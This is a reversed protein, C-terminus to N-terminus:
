RGVIKPPFVSELSLPLELGGLPQGNTGPPILM